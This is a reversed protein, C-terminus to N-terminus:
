SLRRESHDGPETMGAAAKAESWDGYTKVYAIRDGEVDYVWGVALCEEDVEAKALVVVRDDREMLKVPVVRAHGDAPIEAVARSLEDLGHFDGSRLTQIEVHEHFLALSSAHEGAVWLRLM